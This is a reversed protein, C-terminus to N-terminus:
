RLYIVLMALATTLVALVLALFLPYANFPRRAPVFPSQPGSFRGAFRKDRAFSSRASRRM